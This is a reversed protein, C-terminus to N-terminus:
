ILFGRSSPTDLFTRLWLDGCILIIHVCEEFRREPEAGLVYNQPWEGSHVYHTSYDNRITEEEPVYNAYRQVRARKPPPLDARQTREAIKRRKEKTIADDESDESSDEDQDIPPSRSLLPLRLLEQPPSRLTQLQSRRTAQSQIVRDILAEHESLADNASSLVATTSGSDLSLAATAM